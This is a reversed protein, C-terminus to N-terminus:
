SSPLGGSVAGVVFAVLVAFPGTLMLCLLLWPGAVFIVPPGAVFIVGILPVIEDVMEGFTPLQTARLPANGPPETAGPGHPPTLPETTNMGRTETPVTPPADPIDRM